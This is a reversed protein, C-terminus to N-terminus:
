KEFVTAVQRSFMIAKGSADWITAYNHFYGNGASQSRYDYFNWDSMDASPVQSPFELYWSLSSGVGPHKIMNLGPMPPVDAIAILAALDLKGAEKFRLWLDGSM